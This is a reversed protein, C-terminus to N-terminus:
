GTFAGGVFRSWNRWKRCDSLDGCMTPRRGRASCEKHRLLGRNRDERTEGQQRRADRLRPRTEEEEGQLRAERLCM